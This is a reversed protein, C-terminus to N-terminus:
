EKVETQALTQKAGALKDTSKELRQTATLMKERQGASTSYYDGGLGQASFPM